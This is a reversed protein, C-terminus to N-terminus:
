IPQAYHINSRRNQLVWDMARIMGSCSGRGECNLVRVSVIDVPISGAVGFTKGAALAAVHTGHGSCDGSDWSSEQFNYGKIVRNGSTFEEHEAYVGSDIVYLVPKARPVINPTYCSDLGSEQDLRDLHWQPRTDCHEGAGLSHLACFTFIVIAPLGAM